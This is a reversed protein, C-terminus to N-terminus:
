DHGRALKEEVAPKLGTLGGSVGLALAAASDAGNLKARLALLAGARGHINSRRTSVERCRRRIDGHGRAARDKSASM